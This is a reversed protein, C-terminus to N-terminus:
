FKPARNAPDRIIAEFRPDGRLPIWDLGALSEVQLGFPTRVLRTIEKLAENKEGAWALVIARIRASEPGNTHDKAEPQLSVARNVAAIAEQDRGLLVLSVGLNAWADSHNPYEAVVADLRKVNEELLRRAREKEGLALLATALERATVWTAQETEPLGEELLRVVRRADGGRWAWYKEMARVEPAHRTEPPLSAFWDPVAKDGGDVWDQLEARAEAFIVDDPAVQQMDLVVALTERFYRGAEYTVGLSLGIENNRPDLEHARRLHDLAELWRSQRRALLGLAYHGGAHGPVLALLRVYQESAKAYDRFGYYYYEGLALHEEPSGPALATVRDLAAKAEALETTANGEHNFLRVIHLHSLEAWAQAFFPDLQVTRELLQQIAAGNDAGFAPRTIRLNRAQLYLEYAEPNTTPRVAILSKEQPTLVAQLEDAIKTALQTQLAFIDSLDGDYTQAWMHEDSAARILQGTVRVRNGARRVSGELVFAVGLERGILSLTKKTDRYQMVSTRSIVKLAAIKALHTLLDEHVGDAFYGSDKDDSMNIFPLVAISKDEKPRSSLASSAAPPTLTPVPAPKPWFAVALLAVVLLTGGALWWERFFNRVPAPREVRPLLPVAPASRQAELLTRVRDVFGTNPVGRSLRMWQTRRFSEPVLAGDEATDDIAIPLLFATGEAMLHTREEALKWELRFYAERRAQTQASIVPIFLSCEKVQRRIKQDWADGGELGAEDFWVEVEFASLADAIRRAAALDERAYSIFVSQGPASM